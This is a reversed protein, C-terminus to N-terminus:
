RLLVKNMQLEINKRISQNVEPKHRKDDEDHFM